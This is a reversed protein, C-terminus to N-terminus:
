QTQNSSNTKNRPSAPTRPKIIISVGDTLYFESWKMFKYSNTFPDYLTVGFDYTYVMVAWHGTYGALTELEGSVFNGTATELTVGLILYTGDDMGQYEDKTLWDFEASWGPISNAYNVWDSIVTQEGPGTPVGEWIKGLTHEKGTVSEYIAAFSLHGCLNSHNRDGYAKAYIPSDVGVYQAGVGTKSLDSPKQIRM